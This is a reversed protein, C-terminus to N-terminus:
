PAVYGVETTDLRAVWRITTASIGTVQVQLVDNTNDATLAITWGLGNIDTGITQVTSVLATTGSNNGILLSRKFLATNSNGSEKGVITLNCGYSKGNAINFEGSASNSNDVTLLTATDDVTEAILTLTTTQGNGNYGFSHGSNAWQGQHTALSRIGEAHSAYGGAYSYSGEAHSAYGSAVTSYGEAHSAYGSAVSNYGEAHAHRGFTVCSGGEAHSYDGAAYTYYGEAHSGRNSAQTKYGEAHSYDNAAVTRFGEAHATFDLAACGYGEVHAAYGDVYNGYGEAHSYPGVAVNNGGEAHAGNYVAVNGIGEAHTYNLIALNYGGEVHSGYGAATNDYGEAHASGNTATNNTGEAHTAWDESINGYGEAFSMDDSATNSCGGAIFSYNGSAVQDSNIRCCQFDFSKIGRADGGDGCQMSPAFIVIPDGSTIAQSPINLIYNNDEITICPKLINGDRILVKRIYDLSFGRLPGESSGPGSVGTISTAGM